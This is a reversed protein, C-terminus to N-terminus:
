DAGLDAFAALARIVGGSSSARPADEGRTSQGRHWARVFYPTRPAHLPARPIDRVWTDGPGPLPAHLLISWTRCQPGGMLALMDGQRANAALHGYLDDSLVDHRRPNRRTDIAVVYHTLWPAELQIAWDIADHGDPGAYLCLIIPGEPLGHDALTTLPARPILRERLRAPLTHNWGIARQLDETGRSRWVDFRFACLADWRSGELLDRLGACAPSAACALSVGAPFAERTASIVFPMEFVIGSSM